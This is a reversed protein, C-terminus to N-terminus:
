ITLKNIRSVAAKKAREIRDNVQSKAWLETSALVDKNDLSEVRDAYNMGAVVVLAYCNAYSKSCEEIFNRGAQAGDNGSLVINFASEIQKKGYNFVSYGISSRLNGTHDIWSEQQSRDRIKAICEEGLKTLSNVIEEKMIEFSQKFLEDIVSIPTQLTIGM